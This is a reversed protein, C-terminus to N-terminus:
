AMLERYLNFIRLLEALYKIIYGRILLISSIFLLVGALIRVAFSTMFVNIKPAAKGLVALVLNITLSLAIFPASILLGMLFITGPRM